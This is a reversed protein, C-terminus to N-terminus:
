LLFIILSIVLCIFGLQIVKYNECHKEPNRGQNSRYQRKKEKMIKSFLEVLHHM